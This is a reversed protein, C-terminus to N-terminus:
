QRDNLWRFLLLPQESGSEPEPEIVGVRSFGLKRLLHISRTNDAKTVADLVAFGFREAGYSLVAQGAELAFGQACFEPLFAFGFDPNDLAPKKLFGCIGVPVRGNSIRVLYYTFGHERYSRMFGDSLFRRADDEDAVKRDGIFRLWGPSNLLALFFPADDLAIQDIDLRATQLITM